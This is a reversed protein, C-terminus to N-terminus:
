KKASFRKKKEMLEALKRDLEGEDEDEGDGHEAGAFIDGDRSEGDEADEMMEHDEADSMPEEDEADPAEHDSSMETVKDKAMELGEKLGEPSDSAVSVKKLGQDKMADEAMKKLDEVVGLKAKMETPSLVKGGQKKKEMMKELMKHM